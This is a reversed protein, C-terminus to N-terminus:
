NLKLSRSDALPPNRYQEERVTINGHFGSQATIKITNTTSM